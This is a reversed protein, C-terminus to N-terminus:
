EDDLSLHSIDPDLQQKKHKIQPIKDTSDALSYQSINPNLSDKMQSEQGMDEGVDAVELHSLDPININDKKTLSPIQTGSKALKLHSTDPNIKKVTHKAQGPKTKAPSLKIHDTIPVRKAKKKKPKSMRSGVPDMAWQDAPAIGLPDKANTVEAPPPSPLDNYNDEDMTEITPPPPLNDDHLNNGIDPKINHNVMPTSPAHVISAEVEMLSVKTIAGAKHMAQQYTLAKQEQLGKKITIQKGSFLQEITKEDSKFLKVLNAKVEAPISGARCQGNFTVQYLGENQM